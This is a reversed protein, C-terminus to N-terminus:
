AGLAHRLGRRLLRGLARGGGARVVRTRAHAQTGRARLPEGSDPDLRWRRERARGGGPWRGSRSGIRGVVRREFTDAELSQAHPRLGRARDDTATGARAHEHSGPLDPGGSAPARCFVVGGARALERPAARAHRLSRSRRGPTRRSGQAADARRSVPGRSSRAGRGVRASARVPAHDRRRARPRTKRHARDRCGRARATDARRPTRARGPCHRRAAIRHGAHRPM